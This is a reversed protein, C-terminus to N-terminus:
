LGGKAQGQVCLLALWVMGMVCVVSWGVLLGALLCCLFVPVWRVEYGLRRRAEEQESELHVHVLPHAIASIVSSAWMQM